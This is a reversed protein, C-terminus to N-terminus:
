QFFSWFSYFSSVLILMSPFCSSLLALLLPKYVIALKSFRKSALSHHNLHRFNVNMLPINVNLLYLNFLEKTFVIDAYPQHSLLIASSKNNLIGYFYYNYHGAIFITLGYIILLFTNLGFPISFVYEHLSQMIHMTKLPNLTK